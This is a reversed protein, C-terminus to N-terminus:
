RTVLWDPLKILLKRNQMEDNLISMHGISEAATHCQRLFDALKQLDTGDRVNIKPWKDLKERYANAVVFSNGFRDDLLSKAEEYDDDSSLLFYQEVVERVQGGLYKKLYHMKENAPIKRHEILTQFASKWGQYKLPDGNFISPEPPPLCSISVQDALVMALDLISQDANGSMVASTGNNLVPQGPQGAGNPSSVNDAEIKPSMVLQPNVLIDETTAIGPEPVVVAAKLLKPSFEPSDPNLHVSVPINEVGQPANCANSSGAM